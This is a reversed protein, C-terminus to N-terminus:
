HERRLYNYFAEMYYRDSASVMPNVNLVDKIKNYRYVLTNKHMYLRKAAEALNFNTEMLMGTIELYSKKFDEGLMKEFVNFMRQLENMPMVSRLYQGAYDYFFASTSDTRVAQELWKCHQYAYYYQSFSSQFSGIYFMCKKEHMRLWRLAEGLYDAILFKYDSFLEQEGGPMTKFILVRSDDLVFSIDEKSHRDGAKIMELFPGAEVQCLRCLIPIRVISETYGLEDAVSRLRGPDAYEETTLLSIFWEKRNIRRQLELHQKEYKLMAEIAMKTILAVPRIEKPDGTIGVVGERRGDINIVMNIGPRVGPYDHEGSTVVIDETGTVIYYAVEHFTGVRKPDRSAIIVGKENMININYDTYQTVQEIFKQALDLEIM